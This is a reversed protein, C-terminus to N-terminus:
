SAEILKSRLWIRIPGLDIGEDNYQLDGVNSAIQKLIPSDNELLAKELLELIDECCDGNGSGALEQIAETIGDLNNELGWGVLDFLGNLLDVFDKAIDITFGITDIHREAIAVFQAIKVAGYLVPLGRSRGAGPGRSSEPGLGRSSEPGLFPNIQDFIIGSFWGLLESASSDEPDPEGPEGPSGPSGPSGDSSLSVTIEGGSLGRFCEFYSAEDGESDEPTANLGEIHIFQYFEM